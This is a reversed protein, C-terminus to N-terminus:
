IERVWFRQSHERFHQDVEDFSPRMVDTIWDVIDEASEFGIKAREEADSRKYTGALSFLEMCLEIARGLQQERRVGHEKAALKLRAIYGAVTDVDKDRAAKTLALAEQIGQILPATEKMQKRLSEGEAPSILLGEYDRGSALQASWRYMLTEFFILRDLARLDSAVTFKNEALYKGQATDYFLQEARTLLELDHGALSKVTYTVSTTVASQPATAAPL